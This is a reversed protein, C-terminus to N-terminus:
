KYDKDCNNLKENLIKMEAIYLEIWDFNNPDLEHTKNEIFYSPEDDFNDFLSTLTKWVKVPIDEVEVSVQLINSITQGIIGREQDCREEWIVLDKVNIPKKHEGNVLKWINKRRLVDIIKRKWTLHNSGVLKPSLVVELTM